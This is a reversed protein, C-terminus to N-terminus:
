SRSELERAARRLIISSFIVARLLVQAETGSLSLPRMGSAYVWSTCIRLSKSTRKEGKARMWETPPTPATAPVASTVSKWADMELRALSRRSGKPLMVQPAFEPILMLTAVSMLSTLREDSRHRMWHAVSGAATRRVMNASYSGGGKAPSPVSRDPLETRSLPSPPLPPSPPASGPLSCSTTALMSPLHGTEVPPGGPGGFHHAM